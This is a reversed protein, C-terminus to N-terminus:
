RYGEANLVLSLLGGCVYSTIPAIGHTCANPYASTIRKYDSGLTRGYRDVAEESIQHGFIHACDNRIENLKSLSDALQNDIEGLSKTLKLKNAFSLGNKGLLGEDKALKARLYRNLLHEVYLHSVLVGYISDSAKGIAEEWIAIEIDRQETISM